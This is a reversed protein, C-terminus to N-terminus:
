NIRSTWITKTLIAAGGVALPTTGDAEAANVDAKKQLLSAVATKDGAKVADTSNLGFCTLSVM